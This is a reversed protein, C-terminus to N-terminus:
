NHLFYLIGTQERNQRVINLYKHLRVNIKQFLTFNIHNHTVNTINLCINVNGAKFTSKKSRM